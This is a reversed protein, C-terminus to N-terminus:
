LVEDQAEVKNVTGLLPPSYVKDVDRAFLIISM